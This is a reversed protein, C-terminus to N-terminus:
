TRAPKVYSRTPDGPETTTGAVLDVEGKACMAAAEVILDPHERAIGVLTVENRAVAPDLSDVPGLTLSTRPGALDFGRRADLALIRWPRTSAGQATVTAAVISRADAATAKPDVRAIAVGKALLWECWADDLEAASDSVVTPTIGKARLIEVVFRAISNRGTIVVADQASLGTRAYFTYALTVDGAVAAAAPLPLELGDALVVLWRGEAITRAGGVSERRKALPCVTAGGRRCVECEGCPDATGVLVRKGMLVRARDGADIVVGVCADGQWADVEVTVADDGLTAESV